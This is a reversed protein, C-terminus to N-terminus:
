VAMGDIKEIKTKTKERLLAYVNVSELRLQFTVRKSFKQEGNCFQAHGEQPDRLM